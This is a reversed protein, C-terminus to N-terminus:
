CEPSNFVASASSSQTSPARLPFALSARPTRAISQTKLRVLCPACSFRRVTERSLMLQRAVARIGMGEAQLKRVEVYGAFRKARHQQRRQESQLLFQAQAVACPATHESDHDETTSESSSITPPPAAAVRRNVEQAASRLSAYNRELIRELMERINKLLHFRDAM